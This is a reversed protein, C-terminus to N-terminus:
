FIWMITQDYCSEFRLSSGIVGMNEKFVYSPETRTQSESIPTFGPSLLSDLCKLIGISPYIQANLLLKLLRLDKFLAVLFSIQTERGTLKFVKSVVNTELVTLFSKLVENRIERRALGSASVFRVQIYLFWLGCSVM